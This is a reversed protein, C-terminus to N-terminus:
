APPAEGGRVGPGDMLDKLVSWRSDAREHACTCTGRNLNVGCNPCMGACDPSCLPFQPLNLMVNDLVLGRLDLVHNEIAYGEEWADSKPRYVEAVRVHIPSSKDELCRRCTSVVRGEITGRVLIGNEMPELTLVFRLPESSVRALETRLGDVIEEFAVARKSGPSDLLRSVDIVLQSAM